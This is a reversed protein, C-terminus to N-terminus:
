PKGELAALVNGAEDIPTGRGFQERYWFWKEGGSGFVCSSVLCLNPGGRSTDHGNSCRYSSGHGNPDHYHRQGDEDWYEHVAMDTTAAGLAQVTSRLGEKVCIPCRM